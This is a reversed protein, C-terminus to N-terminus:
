VRWGRVAFGNLLSGNLVARMRFSVIAYCSSPSSAGGVHLTFTLHATCNAARVWTTVAERTGTDPCGTPAEEVILVLLM